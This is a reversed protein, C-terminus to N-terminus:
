ATGPKEPGTESISRVWSWGTRIALHNLFKGILIATLVALLPFILFYLRFETYRLFLGFFLTLVLVM